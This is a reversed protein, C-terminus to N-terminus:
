PTLFYRNERSFGILQKLNSMRSETVQPNPDNPIQQRVTTLNILVKKKTISPLKEFDESMLSMSSFLSPRDNKKETMVKFHQDLQEPNM